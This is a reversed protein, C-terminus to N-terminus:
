VEIERQLVAKDLKFRISKLERCEKSVAVDNKTLKIRLYFPVVASRVSFLARLQAKSKCAGTVEQGVLRSVRSRCARAVNKEASSSQITTRRM